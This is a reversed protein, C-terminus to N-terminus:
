DQSKKFKHLIEILSCVAVTTPKGQTSAQSPLNTLSIVLLVGTIVMTVLVLHIQKIKMNNEKLRLGCDNELRWMRWYASTYWFRHTIIM